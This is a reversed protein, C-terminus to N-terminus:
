SPIKVKGLAVIVLEGMMFLVILFLQRFALKSLRKNVWARRGVHVFLLELPCVDTYYIRKSVLFPGFWTLVITSFKLPSALPPYSPHSSKSWSNEHLSSPPESTHVGTWNNAISRFAFYPLEYVDKIHGLYTSLGFGKKSDSPILFLIVSEFEGVLLM